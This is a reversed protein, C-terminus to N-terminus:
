LRKFFTISSKTVKKSGRWSISLSTIEACNLWSPITDLPILKIETRSQFTLVSKSCPSNLKLEYNEIGFEANDFMLLDFDKLSKGPELNIQLQHEEPTLFFDIEIQTMKSHLAQSSSGWADPLMAIKKIGIKDDYKTLDVPTPLTLRQDKVLFILDDEDHFSYSKDTLLEKYVKNIRLSIPLDDHRLSAFKEENVGLLIFDPKKLALLKWIQRDFEPNGVNYYSLFPTPQPKQLFYYLTGRNTLDLFASNTPVQYKQFASQIKNVLELTIAPLKVAGYITNEKSYTIGIPIETFLKKSRIHLDHLFNGNLLTVSFLLLLITDRRNLLVPLVYILGFPILLGLYLSSIVAARPLNSGDLRGLSYSAIFIPYLLCFIFFNNKLQINKFSTSHSTLLFLFVPALLYQSCKGLIRNFSFDGNNGFAPLNSDYNALIFKFNNIFFDKYFLFLGVLVALTIICTCMNIAGAKLKKLNKFFIWIIPLATALILPAGFAPEYLYFFLCFVVYFCIPILWNNIRMSNKIILLFLTFALLLDVRTMPAVILLILLASRLSFLKSVAILTVALFFNQLLISGLVHSSATSDGFFFLGLYGPVIDRLGHPPFVDFYLKYGLAHHNWFTVLQEAFHYNDKSLEGLTYTQYFLGLFLPAFAIM